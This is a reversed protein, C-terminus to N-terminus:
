YGSLIREININGKKMFVAYFEELSIGSAIVLELFYHMADTLEEVYADRDFDKVDTVRHSKGNKLLQNGEFLEETCEFIINKLFKQGTKTKLDVPFNPFNRTQQLLKMFQEQQTWMKEFKDEADSM